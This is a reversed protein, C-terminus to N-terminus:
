PTNFTSTVKLLPISRKNSPNGGSPYDTTCRSGRSSLLATMETSGMLSLERTNDLIYAGVLDAVLWAYGGITLGRDDPNATGDYKYYKDQFTFFTSTMGFKIMSLCHEINEKAYIIYLRGPSSM